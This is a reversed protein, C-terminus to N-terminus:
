SSIFRRDWLNAPLRRLEDVSNVAAFPIIPSRRRLFIAKGGGGHHCGPPLNFRIHLDSRIHVTAHRYILFIVGCMAVMITAIVALMRNLQGM